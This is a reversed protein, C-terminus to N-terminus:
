YFVALLAILFFKFERQFQVASISTFTFLHACVYPCRDRVTSDTFDTRLLLFQRSSKLAQPLSFIELHGNWEHVIKSAERIFERRNELIRM